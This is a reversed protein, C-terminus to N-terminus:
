GIIKGPDFLEMIIIMQHDFCTPTIKLTKICSMQILTKNCVLANTPVNCISILSTEENSNDGTNNCHLWCQPDNAPDNSLLGIVHRQLWPIERVRRRCLFVCCAHVKQEIHSIDYCFWSLIAQKIALVNGNRLLAQPSVNADQHPFNMHNM